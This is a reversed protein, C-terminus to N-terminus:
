ELCVPIRHELEIALPSMAARYALIEVGMKGATRMLEGYRADIHNAPAVRQVGSHQVCFLLVARSGALKVEMLERLHKQGRATVADPFYGTGQGECLSVNKVEVYCDPREADTNDRLLFDIRSNESGFRVEPKRVPYGKLEEILGTDLAEGVLRNARGTNIGVLNARQTEVLEWTHAYKRKPNDATSYWIRSGADQCNRMSGTNPCHITLLNGEMTEIDALFRKYRKVLVGEQLPPVFRM